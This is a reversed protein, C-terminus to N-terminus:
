RLTAEIKQGKKIKVIAKKYGKKWGPTKGMKKPKKPINIINVKLVNVGYIQEIVKKIQIKNAKKFVKFIYQNKAALDSAKESIHPGRVTKYAVDSIRKKTKKEQRKRKPVEKKIEPREKKKLKRKLLKDLISM